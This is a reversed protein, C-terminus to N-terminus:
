GTLLLASVSPGTSASGAGKEPLSRSYDPRQAGRALAGFGVLATIVGLASAIVDRDLRQRAPVYTEWATASAKVHVLTYHLPDPVIGPRLGETGRLRGLANDANQYDTWAPAGFAVVLYAALALFVWPWRPHNVSRWVLELAVSDLLGGCTPCCEEAVDPTSTASVNASREVSTIM